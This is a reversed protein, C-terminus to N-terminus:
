RKRLTNISIGSCIQSYVLIIRGRYGNGIGYMVNIDRKPIIIM